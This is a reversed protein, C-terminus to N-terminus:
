PNASHWNLDTAPSFDVKRVRAPFQDSPRPGVDGVLYYSGKLVGNNEREITVTVNGLGAPMQVRLSNPSMPRWVGFRQGRWDEDVEYYQHGEVVNALNPSLVFPRAVRVAPGNTDFDVLYCGTMWTEPETPQNRAVNPPWLSSEPNRHCGIIMLAGIALM